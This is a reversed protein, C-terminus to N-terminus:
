QILIQVNKCYTTYHHTCPFVTVRYLPFKILSSLGFESTLLIKQCLSKGFFGALLFPLPYGGCATIRSNRVTVFRIDCKTFKNARCLSFIYIMYNNINVFSSTSFYTKTGKIKILLPINTQSSGTPLYLTSNTSKSLSWKFHEIGRRKM